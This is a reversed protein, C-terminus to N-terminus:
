KRKGRKDKAARRARAGGSRRGKSERKPESKKATPRPPPTEEWDPLRSADRLIRREMLTIFGRRSKKIANGLSDERMDQKKSNRWRWTVRVGRPLPTGERIKALIARYVTAKSMGRPGEVRYAMGIDNRNGKEKKAM